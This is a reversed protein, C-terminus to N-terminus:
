LVTNKRRQQTESREVWGGLTKEMIETVLCSIRELTQGANKTRTSGSHPITHAVLVTPQTSARFGVDYFSSVLYFVSMM